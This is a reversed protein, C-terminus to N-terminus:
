FLLDAAQSAIQRRSEENLEIMSRPGYSLKGATRDLYSSDQLQKVVRRLRYENFYEREVLYEVLKSLDVHLDKQREKEDLGRRREEALMVFAGLVALEEEDLETPAAYLSKLAFWTQNRREYEVVSLGISLLFTNFGELVEQLEGEGRGLTQCLEGKEFGVLLRGSVDKRRNGLIAILQGYLEKKPLDEVVDPKISM